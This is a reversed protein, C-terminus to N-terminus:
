LNCFEDIMGSWSMCASSMMRHHTELHGSLWSEISSMDLCERMSIMAIPQYGCLQLMIATASMLPLSHQESLNSGLYTSRRLPGPQITKSATMHMRCVFQVVAAKPATLMPSYAPTYVGSFTTLMAFVHTPATTPAIGGRMPQAAAAPWSSM